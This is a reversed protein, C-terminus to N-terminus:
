QEKTFDFNITCGYYRNLSNTVATLFGDVLANTTSQKQLEARIQKRIRPKAKEVEETLLSKTEDTLARRTYWELLTMTTKEYRDPVKGDSNVKQALVDHVLQSMIENKGNLAESIGAVVTQRVAEELYNKDVHMDVGIINADSM